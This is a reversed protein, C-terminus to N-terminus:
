ENAEMREMYALEQEAEARRRAEQEEVSLIPSSATSPAPGALKNHRAWTLAKQKWNKVPKGTSDHWDGDTYYEVFRAPDIPLGKEEVYARVEELTPPSFPRGKKREIHRIDKTKNRLPGAAGQPTYRKSVKERDTVSDTVSDTISDIKVTCNSLSELEDPTSLRYKSPKGRRGPTFDIFGKEKLGNKARIMNRESLRTYASLTINSAEFWELWIAKNNLHFLCLYLRLEHLSLRLCDGKIFHEMRDIYSSKQSM